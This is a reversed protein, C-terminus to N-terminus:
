LCPHLSNDFRDAAEIRHGFRVLVYYFKMALQTGVGGIDAISSVM